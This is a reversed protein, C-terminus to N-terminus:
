SDLTVVIRVYLQWIAVGKAKRLLCHEVGEGKIDESIMMAYKNEPFLNSKM